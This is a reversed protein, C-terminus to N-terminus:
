FALRESHEIICVFRFEFSRFLFSIKAIRTSKLLMSISEEVVFIKGFILFSPCKVALYVSAFPIMSSSVEGFVEKM